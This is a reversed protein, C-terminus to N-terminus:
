EESELFEGINGTNRNNKGRNKGWSCLNLMNIIEFSTTLYIKFIKPFLKFIVKRGLIKGIVSVKERHLFGKSM